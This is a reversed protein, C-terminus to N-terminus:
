IQSPFAGGGRKQRQLHDDQCRLICNCHKTTQFVHFVSKGQNSKPSSVCNIEIGPNVTEGGEHYYRWNAGVDSPCKPKLGPPAHLFGLAGAKDPHNCKEIMWHNINIICFVGDERAYVPRDALGIETMKYVGSVQENLVVDASVDLRACCSM